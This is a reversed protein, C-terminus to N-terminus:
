EEEEAVIDMANEAWAVIEKVQETNLKAGPHIVTYIEMPMEGEGVEISIDDLKKLKEMMDYEAWLSFNLEDRGERVDKAVLWSFPAVHSYWPYATENSHCDYCTYKLIQHMGDDLLGSVFIDGPNTSQVEPLDNPILQIAGLILILGGLLYTRAKM